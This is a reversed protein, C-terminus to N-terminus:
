PETVPPYFFGPLDMLALKTYYSHALSPILSRRNKHTFLNPYCYVRKRLFESFSDM